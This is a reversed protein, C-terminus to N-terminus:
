HETGRPHAVNGGSIITRDLTAAAARHDLVPSRCCTNRGSHTSRIQFQRLVPSSRTSIAAPSPSSAAGVMAGITGRDRWRSRHPHFPTPGIATTPSRCPYRVFDRQPNSVTVHLPRLFAQELRLRNHSILEFVFSRVPVPEWLSPLGGASLCTQAPHLKEWRRRYKLTLEVM